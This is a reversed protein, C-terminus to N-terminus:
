FTQIETHTESILRFYPTNYKVYSQLHTIITNYTRTQIVPKTCVKSMFRFYQSNKHKLSSDSPGEPTQSIFRFSLKEQKESVLRFYPSM